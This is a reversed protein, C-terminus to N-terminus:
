SATVTHSHIMAYDNALLSSTIFDTQFFYHYKVNSHFNDNRM